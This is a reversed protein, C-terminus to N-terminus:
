DFTWENAQIERIRGFCICGGKAPHTKTYRSHDQRLKTVWPGKKGTPLANKMKTGKMRVFSRNIEERMDQPALDANFGFWADADKNNYIM